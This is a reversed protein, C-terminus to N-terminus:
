VLMLVVTMATLGVMGTNFRRLARESNLRRGLANGFGAWLSICPFNVLVFVVAVGLASRAFGAGATTFASIATIAMVWAKPNLYQFLRGLGFAVALLLSFFGLGIGLMHPLPRVFGFNVGSATLLINNPGPTASSVAAFLM